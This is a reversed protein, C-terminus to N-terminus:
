CLAPETMARVAWNQWTRLDSGKSVVRIRSGRCMWYEPKRCIEFYGIMEGSDDGVMKLAVRSDELGSHRGGLLAIVSGLLLVLEVCAEFRGVGCM